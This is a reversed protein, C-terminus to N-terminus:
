WTVVKGQSHSKSTSPLLDQHTPDTKKKEGTKPGDDGLHIPNIASTTQSQLFTRYIQLDENFM